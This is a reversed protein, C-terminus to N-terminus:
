ENEVKEEVVEMDTYLPIGEQMPELLHDESITEHIMKKMENATIKEGEMATSAFSPLNNVVQNNQQIGLTKSQDINVTFQSGKPVLRVGYYELLAKRELYSHEHKDDLAIEISKKVLFKKNLRLMMLAEEDCLLDLTSNILRRFEGKSLDAEKALLDLDLKDSFKAALKNYAKLLKRVTEDDDSFRELFLLCDKINEVFPAYYENLSLPLSLKQLEETAKSPKLDIPSPDKSVDPLPLSDLSNSM